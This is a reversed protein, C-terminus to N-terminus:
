SRARATWVTAHGTFGLRELLHHAASGPAVAAGVRAEPGADRHAGAAAHVLGSGVGCRRHVPHVVLDELVCLGQRDHAATVRGVPAGHRTALWVRARGEAALERQTAVTAAVQEEDWDRWGRPGPAEAAYRHLVRSAQWRRDVADGGVGTPPPLAAVRAPCAPAVPLADLLLVSTPTLALGLADVADALAPEPAPAGAAAEADATSPEEWRLQVRRAGVRGVTDEFRQRWRDLTGPGPSAVVDLTNGHPWAPRSPTRVIVHDRAYTVLTRAPLSARLVALGLRDDVRRVRPRDREGSGAM